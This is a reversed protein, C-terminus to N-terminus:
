DKTFYLNDILLVDPSEGGFQEVPAYFPTGILATKDGLNKANWLGPTVGGDIEIHVPRDGIMQRLRRIKATMDIFGQGGFGGFGAPGAGAGAGGVGAHGYPDYLGRKEADHLVEYAESAARFREHAEADDPFRDPHSELAVRRYARKIEGEDADRSVGLVAYYDPKAM